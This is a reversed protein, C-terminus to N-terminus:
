DINFQNEVTIYSYRDLFDRGNFPRSFEEEVKDVWNTDSTHSWNKVKNLMEEKTRVWSFHHIFPKEVPLFIKNQYPHYYNERGKMSPPAAKALSTKLLVTSYENETAQYIPDRWYWYNPLKMTDYQRYEGKQIWELFLDGDVVEDIDIYLVYESDPSVQQTGMYRGIGEWYWPNKGPEYEIMYQAYNPNDKFLEASEKLVSQDEPHGMWMHTYTIVHCKVGAKLLNEICPKFFKKDNTSYLIVAEIM